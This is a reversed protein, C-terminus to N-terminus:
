QRQRWLSPDPCMLALVLCTLKPTAPHSSTPLAQFASVYFQAGMREAASHLAILEFRLLYDGDEICEPITVSQIGEDEIQYHTLYLERM